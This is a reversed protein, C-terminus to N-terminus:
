VEAVGLLLFYRLCYPLAPDCGVRALVSFWKLAPPGISRGIVCKLLKLSTGLECTCLMGVEVQFDKARTGVIFISCSSPRGVALLDKVVLSLVYYYRIWTHTYM